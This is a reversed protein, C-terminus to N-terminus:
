IGEFEEKKPDSQVRGTGEEPQTGQRM